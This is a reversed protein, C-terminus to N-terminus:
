SVLLAPYTFAQMHPQSQISIYSCRDRCALVTYGFCQEIFVVSLKIILLLIFYFITVYESLAKKVLPWCEKLYKERYKPFLTAFSSETLLGHPNDEKTFTPEKWGKPVTLRDEAEATRNKQKDSFLHIFKPFTQHLTLCKPNLFTLELSPVGPVIEIM